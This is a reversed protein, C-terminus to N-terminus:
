LLLPSSIKIEFSFVENLSPFEEPQSKIFFGGHGLIFEKSARAADLNDIKMPNYLKPFQEWDSLKKWKEMETEAAKEINSLLSPMDIPKSFVASAGLDFARSLSVDAFGSMFILAPKDHHKIRIEKLLEIGSREPMRIDSVVVDVHNKSLQSLAEDVGDAELVNYGQDELEFRLIERLDEEDDVVLVSKKDEIIM